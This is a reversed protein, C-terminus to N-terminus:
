GDASILVIHSCVWGAAAMLTMILVRIDTRDVPGSSLSNGFAEVEAATKPLASLDVRTMPDYGHEELTRFTM